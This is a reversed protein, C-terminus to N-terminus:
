ETRKMTAPIEGSNGQCIGSFSDDEKKYLVCTVPGHGTPFAFQVIEDSFSTAKITQENQDSQITLHLTDQVVEANVNLVWFADEHMMFSLTWAGELGAQAHVPLPLTLLFLLVLTQRM